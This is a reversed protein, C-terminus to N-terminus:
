RIKRRKKNIVEHCRDLVEEYYKIVDEKDMLKVKELDEERNIRLNKITNMSDNDYELNQNNIHSIDKNGNNISFDPEIFM